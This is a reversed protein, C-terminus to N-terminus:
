LAAKVVRPLDGERSQVELVDGDVFNARVDQTSLLNNWAIMYKARFEGMVRDLEETTSVSPNPLYEFPLYLIIRKYDPDEILKTLSEYLDAAQKPTIYKQSVADQLSIDRPIAASSAELLEVLFKRSTVQDIFEQDNVIEEPWVSRAEQLDYFSETV